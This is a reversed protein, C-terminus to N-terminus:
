RDISQAVYGIWEAVDRRSTPRPAMTQPPEATLRYVRSSRDVVQGVRLMTAAPAQSAFFRHIHDRSGGSRDGAAHVVPGDSEVLRVAIPDGFAFRRPGIQGYSHRWMLQGHDTASELYTVESLAGTLVISEYSWAHGHIDDAAPLAPWVHLRLQGWRPDDALVLKAFGNPHWYSRSAVDHQRPRSRAVAELLHPLRNRADRLENALVRSRTGGSTPADVGSNITVDRDVGRTGTLRRHQAM